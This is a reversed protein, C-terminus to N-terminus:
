RRGSTNVGVIYSDDDITKASNGDVTYIGSIELDTIQGSTKILGFDKNTEISSVNGFSYYGSGGSRRFFRHNDQQGVFVLKCKCHRKHM